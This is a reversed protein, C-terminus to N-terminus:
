RRRSARIREVVSKWQPTIPKQLFEVVGLEKVTDRQHESLISSVAILPSRPFEGPAETDTLPWREREFGSGSLAVSFGLRQALQFAQQSGVRLFFQAMHPLFSSNCRALNYFERNTVSTSHKQARHTATM